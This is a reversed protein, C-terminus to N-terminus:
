TINKVKVKVKNILMDDYPFFLYTTM